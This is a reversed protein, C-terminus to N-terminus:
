NTVEYGKSRIVEQIDNLQLRSEDFQVHVTGEDFDVKGEVGIQDLSGEISKVCSRCTMGEVKMKAEQM